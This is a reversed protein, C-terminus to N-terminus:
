VRGLLYNKELYSMVIIGREWSIHMHHIVIIEAIQECALISSHTICFRGHKMTCHQGSAAEICGWTELLSKIHHAYVFIYVKVRTDALILKQINIHKSFYFFFFWQLLHQNARVAVDLVCWGVMWMLCVILM